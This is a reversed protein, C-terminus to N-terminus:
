ILLWRAKNRSSAKMKKINEKVNKMTQTCRNGSQCKEGIKPKTLLKNKNNPKNMNM